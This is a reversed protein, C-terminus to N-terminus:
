FKLFITSTRGAKVNVVNYTTVPSDKFRIQQLYHWDAPPVDMINFSQYPPNAVRVFSFNQSDLESRSRAFAFIIQGTEAPPKGDFAVRISGVKFPEEKTCSLILVLSLLLLKKLNQM